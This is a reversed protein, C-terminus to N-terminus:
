GRSTSKASVGASLAAWRALSEIPLMGSRKVDLARRRAGGGELVLDRLFGTPPREALAAVGLRDLTAPAGPADAFARGAPGGRRDRGM